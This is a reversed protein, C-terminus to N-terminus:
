EVWGCGRRGGGSIGAGDDALRDEEGTGREAERVVEGPAGAIIQRVEGVYGVGSRRDRGAARDQCKQATRRRRFRTDRLQAAPRAVEVTPEEPLLNRSM